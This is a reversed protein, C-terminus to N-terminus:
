VNNKLAKVQGAFTTSVAARGTKVHRASSAVIAITAAGDVVPSIASHNLACAQFAHTRAVTGHTRIGSEGGAGIESLLHWGSGIVTLDHRICQNIINKNIRAIGILVAVLRLGVSKFAM